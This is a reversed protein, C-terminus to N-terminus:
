IVIVTILGILLKAEMWIYHVCVLSLSLSIIKNLCLFLVLVYYLALYLYNVFIEIIKDTINTITIHGPTRVLALINAVIM